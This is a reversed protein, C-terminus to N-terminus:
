AMVEEEAVVIQGTVTTFCYVANIAPLVLISVNAPLTVFPGSIVKSLPTRTRGM